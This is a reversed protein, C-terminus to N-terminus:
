MWSAGCFSIMGAYQVAVAILLDTCACHQPGLSLGVGCLKAGASFLLWLLQGNHGQGRDQQLPVPPHHMGVWRQGPHDDAILPQLIGSPFRAFSWATVCSALPWESFLRTAAIISEMVEGAGLVWLGGEQLRKKFCQSDAIGEQGLQSSASRTVKSISIAAPLLIM